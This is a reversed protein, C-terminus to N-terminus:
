EIGKRKEVSVIFINTANMIITIITIIIYLPPPTIHPFQLTCFSDIFALIVIQSHIFDLIFM